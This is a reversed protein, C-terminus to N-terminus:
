GDPGAVMRWRGGTPIAESKTAEIQQERLMAGLREAQDRILSYLEANNMANAVQSAAATVLRLQEQSFAGPTESFLMMVGLIDETSEIPAIMAARPIDDAPGLRLWRPDEQVNEVILGSATPQGRGIKM